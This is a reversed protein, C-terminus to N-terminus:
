SNAANIEDLMKQAGVYDVKGTGLLPIEDVVYVKRPVSLEAVGHSQAWSQILPRSADPCDSLVVIQEGKKPDPQILAVHENDPWVAKACSEVVALSVTEGAINAFRKVRGRIAIYGDDDIEVVDGTDHWGDALAQLEGPKDVTLYGMMINPGKIFLRGGKAIGPIPEVRSEMGPLLRGVTGPKNAGIQNAAVVPAAETAGYGELITLNYKKKVFARTEDRVQEAGCIAFRLGSLDGEKGARAYRNMFTDTGFALTAGTKKIREPIIKVHLPSPYLAVKIGIFLPLLSGATLGFCHFTPLPNFLVDDPLLEIHSRVQECNAVLNKHSLVVGKPNGETGSTFLIVGPKKYPPSNLVMKPLLPGIVAKIKDSTKVTERVDELYVLRVHPAIEEIFKELGGIEIFRHATIVTDIKAAKFAARLNHTGASFNLMAPVRGITQLGFFTIITAAGTPLLVGVNGPQTERKLASGLAISARIIETYTLVRDDADIIAETKGGYRRRARLLAGFLNIHASSEKFKELM